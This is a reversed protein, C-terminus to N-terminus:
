GWCTPSPNIGRYKVELTKANYRAGHCTPCPAYVSPLFLLEVVYLARVRAPKAAAKPWTSPFADPTMTVLARLRPRPLYSACTISCAPIPPSTPVRRAASPLRISGSWGSSLKWALQLKEATAPAQPAAELEAGEVEDEEIPLQHGLQEAVLEVLAQSVLSSKGSGSVGTVTTFVGLPFAVDLHNLNNRTM